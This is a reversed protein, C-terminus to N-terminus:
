GNETGDNESEKEEKVIPKVRALVQLDQGEEVNEFQGAQHLMYEIGVLGNELVQAYAESPEYGLHKALLHVVADLDKPPLQRILEKASKVPANKWLTLAFQEELPIGAARMEAQKKAVGEAIHQDEAEKNARALDKPTAKSLYTGALYGETRDIEDLVYSRKGRQRENLFKHGIPYILEPHKLGYKGMYSQVFGQAPEDKLRDLEFVIQEAQLSTIESAALMQRVVPYPSNLATEEAQLTNVADAVIKETLTDKQAGAMQQAMSYARVRSEPNKLKRLQTAHKIPIQYIEGQPSYLSLEQDFAAAAKLNYVQQWSIDTFEGQAWAQFSAYGMQRWGQGEYIKLVNDRADRLNGRIKETIYRAEDASMSPYIVQEPSDTQIAPMVMAVGM